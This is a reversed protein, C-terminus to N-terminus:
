PNPPFAAVAFAADVLPRVTPPAGLDGHIHATLALARREVALGAFLDCVLQGPCKSVPISAEGEIGLVELEAIIQMPPKLVRLLAADLGHGVITVFTHHTVIEDGRQPAYLEFGEGGHMEPAEVSLLRVGSEGGARHAVYVCRDVIRELLSDVVSEEGAVHRVGDLWRLDTSLLDLRKVRILYRRQKLTDTLIPQFREVDNGDSGAGPLALEQAELPLVDVEVPAQQL